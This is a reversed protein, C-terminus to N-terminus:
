SISISDLYYRVKKGNITFGVILNDTAVNPSSLIDAEADVRLEAINTRKKV